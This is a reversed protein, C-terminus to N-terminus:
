VLRIIANVWMQFTARARRIFVVYFNHDSIVSFDKITNLIMTESTSFYYSEVKPYKVYLINCLREQRGSNTM